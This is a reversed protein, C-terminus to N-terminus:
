ENGADMFDCWTFYEEIIKAHDFCIPHPLNDRTFVGVERADDDAVPTGDANAIFVVTTAHFRPDRSPDSYVNFFTIDTLDLHVEEKAERAVASEVSEGYEVFGGPLAWGHPANKRKIMVIGDTGNVSIIADVTLFPNRPQSPIVIAGKEFSEALEVLEMNEANPNFVGNEDAKGPFRAYVAARKILHVLDDRNITKM